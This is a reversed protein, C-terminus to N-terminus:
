DGVGVEDLSAVTAFREVWSDLEAASTSSEVASVTQEPLDGFRKRLQKLLIKRRSRVAEQKRGKQMLDDAITKGMTSYRGAFFMRGSLPKLRSGYTPTNRGIGKM